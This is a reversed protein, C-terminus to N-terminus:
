RLGSRCWALAWRPGPRNPYLARLIAQLAADLHLDDAVRDFQELAAALPSRQPYPRSRSLAIRRQSM